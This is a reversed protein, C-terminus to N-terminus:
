GEDCNGDSKGCISTVFHIGGGISIRVEVAKIQRIFIGRVPTLDYFNDSEIETGPVIASTM